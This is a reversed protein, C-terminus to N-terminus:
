WRNSNDGVLRCRWLWLWCGETEVGDRFFWGFVIVMIFMFVCRIVVFGWSVWEGVHFRQLVDSKLAKCRSGDVSVPDFVPRNVQWLAQDGHDLGM